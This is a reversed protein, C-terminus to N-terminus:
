RRGRWVVFRLSVVLSLLRAAYPQCLCRTFVLRSFLALQELLDHSLQGLQRVANEYIRGVIRINRRSVAKVVCTQGLLADIVHRQVVDVRLVESTLICNNVNLWRSGIRALVRAQHGYRVLRVFPSRSCLLDFLDRLTAFLLRWLWVHGFCVLLRFVFRLLYRQINTLQSLKRHSFAIKCFKINIM